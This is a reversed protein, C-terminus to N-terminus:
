ARGETGQSTRSLIKDRVATYKREPIPLEAGDTLTCRFRRVSRVYTPNVLYSAHCRVFLQEHGRELESIPARVEVEGDTTHVISHKGRRTSEAWLISDPLFLWESGDAGHLRIREGGGPSSTLGAYVQDYHAAYINDDEHKGHPNSIHCVLIRPVHERTGDAGM